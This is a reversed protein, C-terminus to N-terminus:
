SVNRAGKHWAYANAGRQAMVRQETVRRPEVQAAPQIISLKDSNISSRYPLTLKWHLSGRRLGNAGPAPM